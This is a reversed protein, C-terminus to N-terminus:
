EVEWEKLKDKAKLARFKFKISDKNLGLAKVINAMYEIIEDTDFDTHIYLTSDLIHQYAVTDDEEDESNDSFSVGTNGVSEFQSFTFMDYNVYVWCCLMYLAVDIRHAKVVKDDISMSIMHIGSKTMKRLGDLGCITEEESVEGFNLDADVFERNELNFQMEVVSYGLCKSLKSIANYIVETTFNAELYYGSNYINYASLENNKTSVKGYFKDVTFNKDCIEYKVFLKQFEDPKNIILADLMMLIYEIWSNELEVTGDEVTVSLLDCSNIYGYSLKTLDVTVFHETPKKPSMYDENLKPGKSKREKELEKTKETKKPKSKYTTKLRM